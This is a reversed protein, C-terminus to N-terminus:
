EARLALYRRLLAQEWRPRHKAYFAAQSRRYAREVLPGRDGGLSAHVARAAPELALGWGARALRLCLDADEFYLFFREDFGGVEEFARRRLLACAGTFWGPGLLRALLRPLLTHSWARSEFPNRLKRAAEGLLSLRPEWVFQPRGDPYFLRPAV